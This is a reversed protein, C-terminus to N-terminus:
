ADAPQRREVAEIVREFAVQARECVERVAEAPGNFLYFVVEDGPLLITSTLEVDSGARTLEAASQRIRQAAHEVSAERVDPWFCEAMYM